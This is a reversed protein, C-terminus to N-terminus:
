GAPDDLELLYKNACHESARRFQAAPQVPVDHAWLRRALGQEAPAPVGRHLCIATVPGANGTQEAAANREIVELM